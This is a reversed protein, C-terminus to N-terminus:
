SFCLKGFLMLLHSYYFHKEPSIQGSLAKTISFVFNLLYQNILILMVHAYMYLRFNFFTICCSHSCSCIFSTYPSSILSSNSPSPAFSKIISSTFKNLLIKSTPFVLLNQSNTPIRGLGWHKGYLNLPIITLPLGAPCQKTNLSKNGILYKLNTVITKSFIHAM